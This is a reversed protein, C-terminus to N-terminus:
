RIFIVLQVTSETSFVTQILPLSQYLHLYQLYHCCKCIPTYYRILSTQISKTTIPLGNTSRIVQHLQGSISIALMQQIIILCTQHRLYPFGALHDPLYLNKQIANSPTLRPIIVKSQNKSHCFHACLCLLHFPTCQVMHLHHAVRIFGVM